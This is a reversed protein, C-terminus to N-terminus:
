VDRLVAATITCDTYRGVVAQFVVSQLELGQVTLFTRKEEADLDARLGV